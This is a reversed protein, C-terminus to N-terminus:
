TGEKIANMKDKKTAMSKSGGGGGNKRCRQFRRGLSGSLGWYLKSKKELLRRIRKGGAQGAAKEM